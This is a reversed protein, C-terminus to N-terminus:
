AGSKEFIVYLKSCDEVVEWTGQFGGPVVFSDGAAFDWQEGAANTLRVRGKTMHCFEHEVYNVRWKGRTSAWVGAYLQNSPDTYHNWLTLQPEGSLLHKADPTSAEPAVPDRFSVIQSPTSPM